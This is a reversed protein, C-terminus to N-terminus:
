FKLRSPYVLKGKDDCVLKFVEDFYADVLKQAEAIGGSIWGRWQKRTKRYESEYFAEFARQIKKNPLMTYFSIASLRDIRADSIRWRHVHSGRIAIGKKMSDIVLTNLVACAAEIQPLRPDKRHQRQIFNLFQVLRERLIYLEHLFAEVHFQLHRHKAIRAKRYPFKGIYFEIDRMTNLSRSIESAHHMLWQYHRTRGTPKNLPTPPGLEFIEKHIEHMLLKAKKSRLLREMAPMRDAVVAMQFKEFGKFSSFKPAAM